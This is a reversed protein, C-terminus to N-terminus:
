KAKIKSTYPRIVKRINKAQTKDGALMVWKIKKLAKVEKVDAEGTSEDYLNIQYTVYYSKSSACSYTPGYPYYLMNIVTDNEVGMDFLCQQCGGVTITARIYLTSDHLYVTDIRPEGGGPDDITDDNFSLSKLYLGHEQADFQN